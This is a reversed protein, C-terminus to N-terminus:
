ARGTQLVKRFTEALLRSALQVRADETPADQLSEALAQLLTEATFANWTQPRDFASDRLDWLADLYEQKTGADSLRQLGLTVDVM